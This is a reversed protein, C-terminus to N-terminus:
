APVAKLIAQLESMDISDGTEVAITLRDRPNNVVRTISVEQGPYIVTAAAELDPRLAELAAADNPALLRDNSILHFMGGELEVGPDSELLAGVAATAQVLELIKDKHSSAAGRKRQALLGFRGGAYDMGFNIDHTILMVGPGNPVHRYDAVDLLIGDLEKFRIWEHFIDIFVTDDVDTGPRTFFKICFRELNM